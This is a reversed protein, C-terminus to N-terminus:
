DAPLSVQIGRLWHHGAAQAYRLNTANVTCGQAALVGCFQQIMAIALSEGICSHKGGGFTLAQSGDRTKDFHDPRDIAAADRNASALALFVPTGAKLEVDHLKTDQTCVRPITLAPSNMRLVERVFAKDIESVVSGAHRMVQGIGAEVNRVGDALILIANDVIQQDMMDAAGSEVLDSLALLLCPARDARRDQLAKVFSQRAQALLRNTEALDDASQIPAFLRFFAGAIADVEAIEAHLGVFAASACCAFDRGPGTVLDVQTAGRWRAVTEMAQSELVPAFPKFVQHFARSLAQRASRHGVGDLFPLINAAVSAAVHKEVNKSHLVSFRSPANGLAPATLAAKIDMHRSLLYGGGRLPCIPHEQRLAQLYVSPDALFEPDKIDLPLAVDRPVLRAPKPDVSPRRRWKWM